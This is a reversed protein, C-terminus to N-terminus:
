NKTTLIGWRMLKGRYRFLIMQVKYYWPHGKFVKEVLVFYDSKAKKFDNVIKESLSKMEDAHTGYYDSIYLNLFCKQDDVEDMEQLAPHNLLAGGQWFHTGGFEKNNYFMWAM